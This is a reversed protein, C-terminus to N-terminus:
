TMPNPDIKRMKEIDPWIQPLHASLFSECQQPAGHQQMYCDKNTDMKYVDPKKERDTLLM